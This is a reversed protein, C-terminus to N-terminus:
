HGSIIGRIYLQLVPIVSLASGVLVHLTTVAATTDEIDVNRMVETKMKM